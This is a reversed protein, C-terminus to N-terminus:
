NSSALSLRYDEYLLKGEATAAFRAQAELANTLNHTKAFERAKVVFDHEDRTAASLGVCTGNPIVSVFAANVPQRALMDAAKADAAIADTWFEIADKDRGLIRGTKIGLEEVTRRANARLTGGSRNELANIKELLPGLAEQICQAVAQETMTNEQPQNTKTPTNLGEEGWGEGGSPTSSLPHSGRQHPQPSRAIVKAINRFAARNVLGGLNVGIGAPQLTQEDLLWTPSFRRYNKGRLAAEGASTWKVRARIGGLRPDDGAWYLALVEASAEDDKHNLDLYPVDGQGASALLRMQQLQGNFLAALAANATITVERPEGNVLPTITHTGPPMWQIDSPLAGADAIPVLVSQEALCVALNAIESKRNVRALETNVTNM